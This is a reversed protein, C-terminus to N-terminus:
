AGARCERATSPESDLGQEKKLFLVNWPNSDLLRLYRDMADNQLLRGREWRSITAVGIGTLKAFEDQSPGIRERLLRIEDPTLLGLARCIADHHLRGAEPGSFTENCHSCVRVPLNEAVVPVKRGGDEYDYRRTILRPELWGQGCQPCRTREKETSADTLMICDVKTEITGALTFVLCGRLM